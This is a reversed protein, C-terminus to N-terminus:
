ALEVAGTGGSKFSSAMDIIVDDLCKNSVIIYGM